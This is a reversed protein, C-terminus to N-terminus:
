VIPTSKPPLLTSPTVTSFKFTLFKLMPMYMQVWFLVIIPFAHLCVNNAHQHCPALAVIVLIVNPYCQLAKKPNLEGEPCNGGSM